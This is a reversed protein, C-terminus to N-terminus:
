FTKNITKSDNNKDFYERIIKKIKKNEVHVSTAWDNPCKGKYFFGLRPETQSCAELATEPLIIKNGNKITIIPFDDAGSQGQFDPNLYGYKIAIKLNGCQIKGIKSGGKLLEGRVNKSKSMVLLEEWDVEKKLFNKINILNTDGLVVSNAKPDCYILLPNSHVQISFFIFFSGIILNINRM